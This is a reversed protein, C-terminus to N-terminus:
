GVVVKKFYALTLMENVQEWNVTSLNNKKYNELRQPTLESWENLILFPFGQSQLDRFCPTETVIPVTRMLWAEALKPSQIGQGAPAILFESESLRKWYDDSNLEERHIWDHNEVFEVARRRDELEQDLHKWIGGWAALVGQKKWKERAVKQHLSEILGTSPRKLYYSIFGMSFSEVGDMEIDKAEFYIKECHPKLSEIERKLASLNTDEGAVVLTINKLVPKLLSLLFLSKRSALCLVKKPPKISYKLPLFADPAWLVLDFLAFAPCPACGKFNERKPKYRLHLLDDICAKNM